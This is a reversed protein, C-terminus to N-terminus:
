ATSRTTAMSNTSTSASPTRWPTRDGSATAPATTAMNSATSTLSLTMITGATTRSGASADYGSYIDGIDPDNTGTLDVLTWKVQPQPSDAIVFGTGFPSNMSQASSGRGLYSYDVLHTASVDGDILAAVRSAVDDMGLQTGYNYALVRGNPYALKERMGRVKYTMAIRRIAGDVGTGLTSIRDQTMRGLKDYDYSHVSGNQDTLGTQQRQRNYCFLIVDSADVSDPYIEKRKLLSSAVNSDALTTGYVDSERSSRVADFQLPHM